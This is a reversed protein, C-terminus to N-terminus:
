TEAPLRPTLTNDSKTLAFAKRGLLFVAVATAFM